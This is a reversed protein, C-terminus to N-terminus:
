PVITVLSGWSYLSPTYGPLLRSRELSHYSLPSGDPKEKKIEPNKGSLTTYLQKALLLLLSFPCFCSAVLSSVSILLFHSITFSASM